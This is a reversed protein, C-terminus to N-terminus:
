SVSVAEVELYTLAEELSINGPIQVMMLANGNTTLYFFQHMHTFEKGAVVPTNTLDSDYYYYTQDEFQLKTYEPFRNLYDSLWEDPSDTTYHTYTFDGYTLNIYIFDRMSAGSFTIGDPLKQPVYYYTKAALDCKQMAFDILGKKLADLSDYSKAPLYSGTQPTSAATSSMIPADTTVVTNQSAEPKLANDCASFLSMLCLLTLILAFRYKM